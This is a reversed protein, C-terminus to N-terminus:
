PLSYYSKGMYGRFLQLYTSSGGHNLLVNVRQMQQRARRIDTSLSSMKHGILCYKYLWQTAIAVSVLFHIPQVSKYSLTIDFSTVHTVRSIDNPLKFLAISLSFRLLHRPSYCFLISPSPDTRRTRYSYDRGWKRMERSYIEIWRPSCQKFLLRIGTFHSYVLM